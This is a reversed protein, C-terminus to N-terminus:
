AGYTGAWCAAHLWRRRANSRIRHVGALIPRRCRVCKGDYQALIGDHPRSLSAQTTV